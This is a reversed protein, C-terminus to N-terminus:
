PLEVHPPDNISKFDGGWRLGVERALKGFTAKFRIPYSWDTAEAPNRNHKSQGPKANTVIPGPRTRGQAYLHAQLEPDRFGSILRPEFGALQCRYWLAACSWALQPHLNWEYALLEIQEATLPDSLQTRLPMPPLCLLLDDAADM